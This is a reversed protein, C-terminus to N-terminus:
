ERRLLVQDSFLALLVILGIVQPREAEEHSEVAAVVEASVQNRLGHGDASKM